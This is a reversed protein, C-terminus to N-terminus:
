PQRSSSAFKDHLLSAGHVIQVQEFNTPNLPTMVRKHVMVTMRPLAYISARGM